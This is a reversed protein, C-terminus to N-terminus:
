VTIFKRIETKILDHGAQTPHIGDACLLCKFNHSTLFASRIDLLACDKMIAIKEILNNYYEQWRSLMSIDGLWNLIATNDLGQSIWNMYKEADIPIISCIIPIAGKERILDIAASYYSIFDDKNVNPEFKGNPNDSIEKWNFDCDNGGFELLITSKEEISMIRKKIANFGDCITFGMRANNTVSIDNEIFSAFKHDDCLKYKGQEQSYMVGRM